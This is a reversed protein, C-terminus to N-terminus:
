AERGIQSGNKAETGLVRDCAESVRQARERFIRAEERAEAEEREEDARLTAVVSRLRVFLRRLQEPPMTLSIVAAKPLVGSWRLDEMLRLEDGFEIGLREAREFDEAECAMRLDDIGSIHALVVERLADGEDATLEATTSSLRVLGVASRAAQRSREGASGSSREVRDWWLRAGRIGPTASPM